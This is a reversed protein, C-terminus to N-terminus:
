KQATKYSSWVRYFGTDMPYPSLTRPRWCIHARPCSPHWWRHGAAGKANAGWGPDGHGQAAADPVALPGLFVFFVNLSDDACRWCLGYWQPFVSWYKLFSKINRLVDRGRVSYRASLWVSGIRVQLASMNTAQLAQQLAQSFLDNSVPTGAPMPAVGSSPDM